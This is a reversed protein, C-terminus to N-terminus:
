QAKAMDLAVKGSALIFPEVEIHLNLELKKLPLASIIRKNALHRKRRLWLLINLKLGIKLL